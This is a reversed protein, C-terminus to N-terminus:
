SEWFKQNLMAEPECRFPWVEPFEVKRYSERVQRLAVRFTKEFVIAFYSQLSPSQELLLQLESRQEQITEEWGRNDYTSDVYVRKLLHTLLVRLRSELERKQSKGLAQIEEILHELDLHEFDHAQLRAATAELWLYFDQEYLQQLPQEM